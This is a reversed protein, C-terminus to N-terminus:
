SARRRKGLRSALHRPTLSGDIRWGPAIAALPGIVFDRQALRPHPITLRRTVFRGGDWAVLDLDLVREGWRRGRRRGFDREVGKLADLMEAPELDSEVLAVANAFDRGAGGVAKNLIIPSADFLSYEADLRGIAAEVVGAPRGHRIHRRNSGIAIAYLHTARGM